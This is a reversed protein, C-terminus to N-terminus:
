APPLQGTRRRLREERERIEPTVADGFDDLTDRFEKEDLEEVNWEPAVAAELAAPSHEFRSMRRMSDIARFRGTSVLWAVSNAPIGDDPWQAMAAAFADHVAEEAADFDGLLRVLTAFVRRSQERYLRDVAAAVEGTPPM